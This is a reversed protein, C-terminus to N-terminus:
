STEMSIVQILFMVEKGSGAIYRRSWHFDPAEPGPNELWWIGTDSGKRDSLLIDQDGDEDMDKSKLSMIWGSDCLERLRWSELGSGPPPAQLWCIQADAGKSGLVLDDGDIGDIQM